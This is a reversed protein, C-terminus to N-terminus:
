KWLIHDGGGGVIIIIDCVCCLCCLYYDEIFSSFTMYKSVMQHHNYPINTEQFFTSLATQLVSFHWLKCLIISHDCLGGNVM